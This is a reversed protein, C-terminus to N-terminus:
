RGESTNSAWSIRWANSGQIGSKVTDTCSRDSDVIFSALSAAVLSIPGARKIASVWSCACPRNPRGKKAAGPCPM